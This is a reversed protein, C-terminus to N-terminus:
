WQCYLMVLDVKNDITADNKTEQSISSENNSSKNKKTLKIEMDDYAWQHRLDQSSHMDVM